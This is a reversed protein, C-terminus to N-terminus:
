VEEGGDGGGRVWTALATHEGALALADAVGAQIEVAKGLVHERLRRELEARDDAGLDDLQARNPITDLVDTVLVDVYDTLWDSFTAPHEDVLGQTRADNWVTLMMGASDVLVETTAADVAAGVLTDVVQSAGTRRTLRCRKGDHVSMNGM